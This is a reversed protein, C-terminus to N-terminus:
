IVVPRSDLERQWADDLVLFFPERAQAVAFALGFDRHQVDVWVGRALGAQQAIHQPLKLLVPADQNIQLAVQVRGDAGPVAAVDIVQYRGQAMREKGSSSESSGQLSDSLSGIGKSAASSASSAGSDSAQAATVSLALTSAMLLAQLGFRSSCFTM